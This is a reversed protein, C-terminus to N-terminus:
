RELDMWEVTKVFLTEDERFIITVVGAKRTGSMRKTVIVEWDNEMNLQPASEIFGQRLINYADPQTISRDEIRDFAHYGFIVRSSDEARERVLREAEDTRLNSWNIPRKFPTPEVMCTDYQYLWLFTLKEKLPLSLVGKMAARGRYRCHSMAGIDSDHPRMLRNRTGPAMRYALHVGALTDSQLEEIYGDIVM